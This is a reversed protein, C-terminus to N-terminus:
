ATAADLQQAPAPAAAPVDAPLGTGRWLGRLYALGGVVTTLHLLEHAELVGPVLHPWQRSDMFGGLTVIIGSGILPAGHEAGRLRWARVVTPLGCWGMGIYLLPSIWAPLTSLAAMELTVGTVAIGWLVAITPVLRQECLVWRVASFSAALGIWISAHDLHWFLVKAPHQWPLAHYTASALLMGVVAVAYVGLMVREGGSRGRRVLAPGLAAITLGTALHVVTSIPEALGFLSVLDRHVDDM